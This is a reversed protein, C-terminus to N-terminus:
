QPFARARFQAGHPSNAFNTAGPGGPKGNELEGECLAATDRQFVQQPKVILLAGALAGCQVLLGPDISFQAESGLGSRNPHAM